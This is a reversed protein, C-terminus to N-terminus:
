GSLQGDIQTVISLPRQVENRIILEKRRGARCRLLHTRNDADASLGAQEVADSRNLDDTVRLQRRLEPPLEGRILGVRVGNADLLKRQGFELISEDASKWIHLLDAQQEESFRILLTEVDVTDPSPTALPLGRMSEATSDSSWSACGVCYVATAM